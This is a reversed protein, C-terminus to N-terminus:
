KHPKTIGRRISREVSHIFREFRISYSQFTTYNFPTEPDAYIRLDPLHLKKKRLHCKAEFEVIGDPIFDIGSHVCCVHALVFHIPPADELLFNLFARYISSYPGFNRELESPTPVVLLIKIRGDKGGEFVSPKAHGRSCGCGEPISKNNIRYRARLQNRFM